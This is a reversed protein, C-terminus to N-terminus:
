QPPIASQPSPADAAAGGEAEGAEQGGGSQAGSEESSAAPEPASSAAEPAATALRGDLLSIMLGSRVWLDPPTEADQQISTFVDRAQQLDGAGYAATGLIERASHRWANGATDLPAARERAGAFDRADLVLMAARIRALDRLGQEVSADAAIADYAALAAEHDGGAAKAGALRLRALTPYAGAGQEAIAALKSEGDAANGSELADLATLYQDGAQAAQREQWWVYGRYGATVLVVLVCAGIIVPAFRDWVAKLQARRLEEDVERIFQDSRRDDDAM